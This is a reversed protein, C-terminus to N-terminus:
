RSGTSGRALNRTAASRRCTATSRSSRRRCYTLRTPTVDFNPWFGESKNYPKEFVRRAAGVEIPPGAAIEVAIMEDGRRYFLTPANRAFLPENGGNTSVTVAEGPGPFPRVYIESRGTDRRGGGGAPMYAMSGTQSFAIQATGLATQRVGTLAVAASGTKELRAVDFPAVLLSGDQVYAIHGSRLYHPNVGRDIFHREGTMLSEAFIQLSGPGPSSVYLIAIGGPLREPDRQRNEGGLLKTVEQPQGGAAPVRWIGTVRGPNFMISADSEWALGFGEDIDAPSLPTGGALAVKKVKRDAFFAIWAGDPSFAPSDAGETGPLARAEFRDIDRVYLMDDRGSVYAIHRGDPSMALVGEANASLGPEPVISLRASPVTARSFSASAL